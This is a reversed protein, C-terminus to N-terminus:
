TGLDTCAKLSYIYSLRGAAASLARGTGQFARGGAHMAVVPAEGIRAIGVGEVTLNSGKDASVLEWAGQLM